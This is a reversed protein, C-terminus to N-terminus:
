VRAVRFGTCSSSNRNGGFKARHIRVVPRAACREVFLQSKHFQPVTPLYKTRSEGAKEM